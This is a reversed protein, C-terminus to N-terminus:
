WEQSDTQQYRTCLHLFTRYVTSFHRFSNDVAKPNAALGAGGQEAAKFILRGRSSRGISNIVPM